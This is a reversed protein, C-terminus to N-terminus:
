FIPEHIKFQPKLFRYYGKTERVVECGTSGYLLYLPEKSEYIADPVQFAFFENEVGLPSAKFSGCYKFPERFVDTRISGTERGDGIQKVMSGIPLGFFEKPDFEIQGMVALSGDVTLFKM